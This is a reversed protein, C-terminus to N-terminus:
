ALPATNLGNGIAVCLRHGVLEVYGDHSANVVVVVVVAVVVLQQRQYIAPALNAVVANGVKYLKLNLIGVKLPTRLPHEVDSLAVYDSHIAVCAVRYETPEEEASEEKKEDSVSEEKEEAKEEVKEEVKPEEKTEVKEEEETEVKKVEKEDAMTKSEKKNKNKKSFMKAFMKFM